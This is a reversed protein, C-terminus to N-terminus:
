LPLICLPVVFVYGENYKVVLTTVFVMLLINFFIFTVKVNNRWVEPRYKKLFLMLMMLVLAVLITYGSIIFLLNNETWLESEYEAKLSSLIKLNEAEVVEGKAVILKGEDVSGRTMSIKSFEDDLAKKTLKDDYRVNPRLIDFFLERFQNQYRTLSQEALLAGLKDGADVIGPLEASKLLIAENNKVLYFEPKDSREQTNELLGYRYFNELILLSAKEFRQRQTPSYREKPFIVEFQRDFHRKVEDVITPDYSYYDIHRSEIEQEELSIEETSKKITFDFPAYLNEYQWPKGKQFEYKFKGGRPFFFVICAVTLFYLFYKYILSQKKYVTDLYKGM